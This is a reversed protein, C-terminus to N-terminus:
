KAAKQATSLLVYYATGLFHLGDREAYKASFYGEGDLLSSCLDIYACDANHCTEKLQSNYYNVKEMTENGEAEHAKTVPPISIVFVRTEPSISSIKAIFEGLKEAMYSGNMYALGNTGLMIFIHKPQMATIKDLCTIGDIDRTHVSEPNLGIEAFVNNQDLFGFLYLGTFISDGIFLDNSFFDKDFSPLPTNDETQANTIETTIDTIPETTEESISVTEVTTETVTTEATVETTTIVSTTIVAPENTTTIDTINVTGEAAQNCGSLLLPILTLVSIFKKNKM